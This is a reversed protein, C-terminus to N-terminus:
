ATRALNPGDFVRTLDVKHDLIKEWLDGVADVREPATRMTFDTPLVKGVEAWVLPMSVPAGFLARPSYPAALTKGRTNQNYDLFVKGRRREISWEITTERPHHQQVYRCIQESLARVADYNLNRVIPVFVHLGTKGSTKVFSPLGLEDLVDKVWLAAEAARRYGEVHFEPESGAKEQGSYLYPDLDFVMFDPYNVVSAELNEVSGTFSRPLHPAEPLPNV